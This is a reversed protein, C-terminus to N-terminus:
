TVNKWRECTEFSNKLQGSIQCVLQISGSMDRKHLFERCNVCRKIKIDTFSSLHKAKQLMEDIDRYAPFVQKLEQLAQITENRM